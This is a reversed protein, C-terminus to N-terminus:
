NRFFLTRILNAVCVLNIAVATWWVIKNTQSYADIIVKWFALYYVLFVILNMINNQWCRKHGSQPDPALEHYDEDVVIATELDNQETVDM